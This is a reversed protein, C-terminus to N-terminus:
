VVEQSRQAIMGSLQGGEYTSYFADLTPDYPSPVYRYLITEGLFSYAYVNPGALTPAEAWQTALQFWTYRWDYGTDGAILTQNKLGDPLTGIDGKPGQPGRYGSIQISAIDNLDIRQSM